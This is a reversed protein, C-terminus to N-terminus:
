CVCSSLEQRFNWQNGWFGACQYGGPGHLRLKPGSIIFDPIMNSFPSRAMPPITPTALQMIDELGDLSTGMLILALRDDGNPALSLVGTDASTFNCRNLQVGNLLPKIPIRGLFTETWKNEEKNGIIILNQNELESLSLKIDEVVRSRADSTMMFQNSLYTSLQLLKARASKVQTGTVILFPKEAVRRAPGYMTMIRGVTSTDCIKWSGSESCISTPAESTSVLSGDVTVTEENPLDISLTLINSTVLHFGDQNRKMQLTSKRLPIIQQIIRVGKVYGGYAPNYITMTYDDQQDTYVSATDGTCDERDASCHLGDPLESITYEGLFQRVEPDNMVGGDNTNWTDWWWHEKDKLESYTINVGEETLLRFMRRTFFPHVTRDAAGIRAFVPLGKLNSVLRDVDNENFCMKRGDKNRVELIAKLASDVHSSSIDFEFFKNSDGYEEKKNWGAMSIVAKAIQPYHTALHWAGHGGMSHGAFIVEDQLAKNGDPWPWSSGHSYEHLKELATMATLSGPGEWNHAGHRTPALVWAHEVGFVWDGNVMRKYSDAQNQAAVGTGHLSLVVRCEMDHCSGIPEIVAAEQISGDHDIFSMLFSEHRKRCRFSVAVEKSGGSFLITVKLKFDKCDAVVDKKQSIFLPVLATQSPAISTEQSEEDPILSAPNDGFKFRVKTLWNSTKLNTIPIAIPLHDSILRGEVLDPIKSPEHILIEEDASKFRCQFVQTAKARLRVFVSHIGQQLSLSSWFYERRYVDGAILNGDVYVAPVGLCQVAVDEKESNVSFEGVAWGQWETIAVSGLSNVLDGWNIKPSVQVPQDSIQEYTQWSIKGGSALESYFVQKKNFRRKAASRVGGFAELPDGDLEPKGTFPCISSQLQVIHMLRPTVRVRSRIISLCWHWSQLPDKNLRKILCSLAEDVQGTLRLRSIANDSSVKCTDATPQEKELLQKAAKKCLIDNQYM